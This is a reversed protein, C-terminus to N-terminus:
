YGGLEKKKTNYATELNATMESTFNISYITDIINYGKTRLEELKTLDTCANIEDIVAYVSEGIVRDARYDGVTYGSSLVENDDRGELYSYYGTATQTSSDMGENTKYEAREFSATDLGEICRLMSKKWIQGPYTSGYLSSMARPTDFGVWVSISYYPTAGCLWGDKSSNTTGTKCFAETKSSSSWSLGAATGRVLVGKLIDVMDDAAKEDYIQIGDEEIYLENGEDDLISVLCTNEYYEGHNALTSYAAAMEATTVGYTLGGLAASDYYDDKCLGSFRMNTIFSMGYTPTIKDFLQWACGNQSQEVASRMTMQTGTLEQVNVGKEAAKKVDINQLMSNATYGLQLAPTYVAIPKFTSGPQRYSQYARNLSYVYTNDEQSRGGVLAVVKHTNNDVVTLAGQLAYVGTEEDTETNFSLTDDLITQLDSYLETDLSTYIKYGGHYLKDKEIQYQYDYNEHYTDYAEDTDFAYQFEFGDLRMLYKVACDIAYTTEYDNFVYEPKEITITEALATELEADTIYGLENMDALIKDRRELARTSDNYPNYYEPRNPIACLYAIESTTLDQVDKNFYAHAASQIGYIGNAFCIDNCYFEM